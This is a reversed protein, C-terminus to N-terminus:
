KEKDQMLQKLAKIEQEKNYIKDELWDLQNETEWYDDHDEQLYYLEEELKELKEKNLKMKTVLIILYM